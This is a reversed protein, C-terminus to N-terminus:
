KGFRNWADDVIATMLDIYHGCIRNVSIRRINEPADVFHFEVRKGIGPELSSPVYQIETEGHSKAVEWGSGGLDDGIVFGKAGFPRDRMAGAIMSSSLVDFSLTVSTAVRGQKLIQSRLKYLYSSIPDDKLKIRWGDYWQEFDPEISRLNELVNTVARGYVVADKLGIRRLEPNESALQELGYQASKLTRRARKLIANTKTNGITM